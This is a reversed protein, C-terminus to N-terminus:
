GHKPAAYVLVWAVQMIVKAPTSGNTRCRARTCGEDLQLALHFPTTPIFDGQGEYDRGVSWTLKGNLYMTISNPLWDVAVTQWQAFNVSDPIRHGIFANDAGMHLFEGAGRRNSSVPRVSGPYVEAIDIEGDAHPGQPWLLVAPEYGAGNAARFRIVWRGYTQNSLDAIGGGAYGYPAQYHGILNLNGGSVQVSAKTYRTGLSPAHPTNYIRWHELNLRSGSFNEAFVPKGWNIGDSFAEASPSADAGASQSAGPGKVLTYKGAKGLTSPRSTTASTASHRTLGGATATRSRSHNDADLRGTVVLASVLLAAVAALSFAYRRM